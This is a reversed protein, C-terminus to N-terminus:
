QGLIDKVKAMGKPRQIECKCSQSEGPSRKGCNERLVSTTFCTDTPITNPYTKGSCKGIKRPLPEGDSLRCGYLYRSDKGNPASGQESCAWVEDGEVRILVGAGRNTGAWGYYPGIIYDLVIPPIVKVKCKLDARENKLRELANGLYRIDNEATKDFGNPLSKGRKRIIEANAFGEEVAKQAWYNAKQEDKNVGIGNNYFRWMLIQAPVFGKNAAQRIFPIGKEPNPEIGAEPAGEVYILGLLAQALLNGSDNSKILLDMAIGNDHNVGADAQHLIALILQANPNNESASERIMAIAKSKVKETLKQNLSETLLDHDMFILLATPDEGLEEKMIWKCAELRSEETKKNFLILSYIAQALGLGKEASRKIFFEGKENDSGIGWQETYYLGLCFEGMPDGSQESARVHDMFKEDSFIKRLEKAGRDVHTFWTTLARRIEPFTTEAVSQEEKKRTLESLSDKETGKPAYTMKPDLGTEGALIFSSWFFPHDFGAKRIDRRALQLAEIKSKGTELHKFFSEVLKVSSEESVSWMSMLVSKAGAYQFARGMGMTGEGSIRKGLGTQCATLAVVDANMKLGMVESMKLYGDTGPPVLTLVLVPEQIIPIDSGYYGHTAFIVKDYNELKPAIKNIFSDKAADMGTLIESKSKYIGKIGEALEETMPLRPFTVTGQKGDQMAVMLSKFAETKANAMVTKKPGTNARADKMEFVPDALVLVKNAKSKKSGFTRALTLATISQSYSVPNRDDLFKAGSVYPIEKDTKVEGSATLPLM